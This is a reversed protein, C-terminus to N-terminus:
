GYRADSVSLALLLLAGFIIVESKDFLIDLGPLILSFLCAETSVVMFVAWLGWAITYKDIM